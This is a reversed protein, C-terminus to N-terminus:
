EKSGASAVRVTTPGMEASQGDPNIVKVATVGAVPPKVEKPTMLLESVFETDEPQGPAPKVQDTPLLEGNLKVQARPSLNEGIIRIGKSLELAPSPYPPSPDIHKIVPGGKRAFKGALYGLSSAGMLPNFNEPIEAMNTVTGPDQVLTAAVFAITGLITWLFYQLREPAFVGGTSIFDGIGPHVPGAGKSGRFGTAGVALATTTASLGLLVPLGQPVKPLVWQSQVLFHSVAIYSYALIAAATWLILQLKSLSYTNSQPEIFLFTLTNYIRNKRHHRKVTQRSFLSVIAVFLGLVGVAILRPAELPLVSLVIPKEDSILNDAEVSIELPRGFSQNDLSLGLIRLSRWSRVLCPLKGVAKCSKRDHRQNKNLNLDNKHNEIVIPQDNIRIIIENDNFDGFSEGFIELDYRGDTPYAVSPLIAVISPKESPRVKFNKPGLALVNGDESILATEYTGRRIPGPLKVEAIGRALQESDLSLDKVPKKPATLRLVIRKSIAVGKALKITVVTDPGPRVYLPNLDFTKEAALCPRGFASGLVLLFAVCIPLCRATRDCPEKVSAVSLPDDGSPYTVTRLM